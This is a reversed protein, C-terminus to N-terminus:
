DLLYEADLRECVFHVVHIFSCIRVSQCENSGCYVAEGLFQAAAICVVCGEIGVFKFALIWNEAFILM